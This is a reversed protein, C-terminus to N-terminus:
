WAGLLARFGPEEKFDALHLKGAHSLLCRDADWLLSVDELTTQGVTVQPAHFIVTPVEGYHISQYNCAAVAPDADLLQGALQRYESPSLIQEAGWDRRHHDMDLSPNQVWQRNASQRACQTLVHADAPLLVEGNTAAELLPRTLQQLTERLLSSPLAKAFILEGKRGEHPPSFIFDRGTPRAPLRLHAFKKEDDLFHGQQKVLKKWTDADMGDPPEKLDPTPPQGENNQEDRHIDVMIRRCNLHSPLHWRLWEPSGKLVIKGNVARCLDCLRKDLHEIIQAWPWEAADTAESKGLEYFRATLAGTTGTLLREALQTLSSAAM